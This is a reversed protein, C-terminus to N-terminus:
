LEPDQKQRRKISRPEFAIGIQYGVYGYVSGICCLGLFVDLCSFDNGRGIIRSIFLVAPANLTFLLLNLHGKPDIEYHWHLGVYDVLFIMGVAAIAGIWRRPM